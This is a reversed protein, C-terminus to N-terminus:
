MPWWVWENADIRGNGNADIRSWATASWYEDSSLFGDNNADFATWYHTWYDPNYYATRYFGGARWCHEFEDRDIRGDRDTDWFSYTSTRYTNWEDGSIFGDNNVDVYGYSGCAAAAEAATAPRVPAPDMACATLGAGGALLMIIMKRM